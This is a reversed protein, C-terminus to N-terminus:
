VTGVRNRCFGWAQPGKQLRRARSWARFHQTHRGPSARAGVFVCFRHAMKLKRCHAQSTRCVHPPPRSSGFSCFRRRPWAELACAFILRVGIGAHESHSGKGDRAFFVDGRCEGLENRPEPWGAGGKCRQRSRFAVRLCSPFSKKAGPFRDGIRSQQCGVNCRNPTHPHLVAVM